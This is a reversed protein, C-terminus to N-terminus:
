FLFITFLICIFFFFNHSVMLHLLILSRDNGPIFSFGLLFKQCHRFVSNKEDDLLAGTDTDIM